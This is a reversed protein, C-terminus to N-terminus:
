YNTSFYHDNAEQVDLSEGFSEWDICNTLIGLGENGYCDTYFQEAYDGISDYKGLYADNIYEPEIGLEHAAALVDDDFKYRRKVDAWEKVDHYSPNEGLFDPIEDFTISDHLFKVAEEITYGADIFENVESEDLNILEEIQELSLESTIFDPLNEVTYDNELLFAITEPEFSTALFEVLNDHDLEVSLYFDDIVDQFNEPLVEISEDNQNASEHMFTYTTMTKVRM